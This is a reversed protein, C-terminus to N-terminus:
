EKEGGHLRIVAIGGGTYRCWWVVTCGLGLLNNCCSPEMMGRMGSMYLFSRDFMLSVSM